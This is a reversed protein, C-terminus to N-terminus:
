ASRRHQVGGRRCGVAVGVAAACRRAWRAPTGGGVVNRAEHADQDDDHRSADDMLSISVARDAIHRTCSNPLLLVWLRLPAILWISLVRAWRDYITGMSRMTDCGDRPQAPRLVFAGSDVAGVLWLSRSFGLSAM